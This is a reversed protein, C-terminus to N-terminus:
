IWLVGPTERENELYKSASFRNRERNNKAIHFVMFFSELEYERARGDRRYFSWNFDAPILERM